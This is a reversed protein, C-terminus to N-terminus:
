KILDKALEPNQAIALAKLLTDSSIYDNSVSQKEVSLETEIDRTQPIYGEQLMGGFVMNDVVQILFYNNIENRVLYMGEGKYNRADWVLSSDMTLQEFEILKKM